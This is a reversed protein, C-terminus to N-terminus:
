PSTPVNGVMDCSRGKCAALTELQAKLTELVSAYKPDHTVANIQSPDKTLDYLEYRLGIGGGVIKELHWRDNHLGTYNAARPNEGVEIAVTRDKWSTPKALVDQLPVGDMARGPTAGAAKLITPALDVNIATEKVTRGGTKNFGPGKIFLPVRISEDFGFLKNAPVRHEGMLWGNDSTFIFITNDLKGAKKVADYVRGVMDDVGLVAQRRQVFHKKLVAIGAADAKGFWRVGCTPDAPLFASLDPKDCIDAENFSPKNFVDKLWQSDFNRNRYRYPPIAPDGEGLGTASATHPANPTVWLFFPKTKKANTKVFNEAYTSLV